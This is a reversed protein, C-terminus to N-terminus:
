GNAMVSIEHRGPALLRWYDGYEASTIKHDIGAVQIDVGQIGQGTEEDM